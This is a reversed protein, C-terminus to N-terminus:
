EQKIQVQRLIFEQIKKLDNPLRECQEKKTLVNKLNDPLDPKIGTEKQVVESFKAPHATALILTSGEISIKKAVGIAVATHPDVLIKQDIYTKKIILKTEEETLSESCFNESIKKLDKKEIQFEGFKKLDNM